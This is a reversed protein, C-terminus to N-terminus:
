AAFLLQSADKLKAAFVVEQSKLTLRANRGLHMKLDSVCWSAPRISQTRASIEKM